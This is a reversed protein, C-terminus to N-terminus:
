DIEAVRDGDIMDRVFDPKTLGAAVAAALGEEAIRVQALAAIAADIQAFPVSVVGDADGLVIDGSAVARGGLTVPLGAAAPGVCTPSDPTVGSAFIPLGVRVLGAVDRVCGDTVFGAIGMRRGMEAMQDGLMATGRYGDASVVVVDGPRVLELAAYFGVIDGPAAHATIAVGCFTAGPVIQKIDPGLAARGGLADAVNGTEAGAFASVQAESPRPFDRSLRVLPPQEIM